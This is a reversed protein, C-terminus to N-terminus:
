DVYGPPRRWEVPRGTNVDIVRELHPPIETTRYACDLQMQTLGRAPGQGHHSFDTGSLNTGMFSSGTLNASNLDVHSLNASDLTARYLNALGMKSSSLNAELLSSGTLNVFAMTSGTLDAFDLHAKTLDTGYLYAGRLDARGLRVSSLNGKELQLHCLFSGTLNPQYGSQQELCTHKEGRNGVFTVVAQIDERLRSTPDTGEYSVVLGEPSGFPNRAYACLLEMVQIYYQEPYEEALHNLAYIGGLRVTLDQSGLMEAGRQYREHLLSQQTTEAQRQAANAQREAVWARWGAFVFALLGGILLGVNRLTESNSVETPSSPHLWSWCWASVGVGVVLILLAVVGFWLSESKSSGKM